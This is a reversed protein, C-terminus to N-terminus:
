IPASSSPGLDIHVEEEKVLVNTSKLLKRQKNKEHQGVVGTEQNFFVESLNKKVVEVEGSVVVYIKDPADGETFIPHGATEIRREKCYMYLSNVAKGWSRLYPIQKLFAVNRELRMQTEKKLLKEYAEANVVAFHCPTMTVITGMRPKKNILSLEGFYM